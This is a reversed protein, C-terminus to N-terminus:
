RLTEYLRVLDQEVKGWNMEREVFRRGRIGMKRAEAPNELLYIIAEAIEEVNNPDVLIGCKGREVVKRMEPYNSAIVPIKCLMYDFLKNPLGIYANYFEAKMLAFGIKGKAIESYMKKFPLFGTLLINEQLGYKELVPGINEKVKGVIKLKVRVGQNKIKVLALLIDNIGHYSQIGGGMQVMDCDKENFETALDFLLPANPVILYERISMFRKGVSESVVVIRDAFKALFLEIKESMFEIVNRLIGKRLKFWGYAIESPWHEHVDYVVRCKKLLKLLTGVALSDPEHCHYVNCNQKFGEKFVRWITLFHFPKSKAKKVAIIRVGDVVKEWSADDPAIVVVEFFKALSKSEKHFIRVDMPTHTTTLMCIKM